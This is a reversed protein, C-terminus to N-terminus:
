NFIYTIGIESFDAVTKNAKLRIIAKFKPNFQYSLGIGEYYATKRKFNPKYLYFGLDTIVGWKGFRSEYGVSATIESTGMFSYNPLQKFKDFQYTRDHFYSLSYRLNSSKSRWHEITFEVLGNIFQRNDDLDIEKKGLRISITRKFYKKFPGVLQTKVKNDIYSKRIKNSVQNLSYGVGFQLYPLNIGLNPMKWSANSSHAMGLELYLNAREIVKSEFSLGIQMYGNIHSGIARNEPNTKLDYKQTLYGLGLGFKFATRWRITNGSNKIIDSSTLIGASFSKGSIQTGLDYYSFVYGLRQSFKYKRVDLDINSINSSLYQIQLGSIHAYMHQMDEHHPILFGSLYGVYIHSTVKELQLSDNRKILSDNFNIASSLHICSFILWFFLGIHILRKKM